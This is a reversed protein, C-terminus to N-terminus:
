PNEFDTLDDFARTNEIVAADGGQELKQQKRHAAVDELTLLSTDVVKGKQGLRERRAEQRRNLLKLYAGTFTALGALLAWCILDVQLGYHYYPKDETKYFLPCKGRVSGCLANCVNDRIVGLVSVLYYAALLPGKHQPGRPLHLLMAAGAIPFATAVVIVIWRIRIKNTIWACLLICFFQLAGFPMQFLITHFSDYGFSQVILGGFAGIGGSPTAALFLLLVWLYSKPDRLTEWFQAWKWVHAEVGMNNARLREIAIKRDDGHRLFKADVPSSPM